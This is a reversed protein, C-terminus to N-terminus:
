HESWHHGNWWHHKGEHVYDVHDGHEVAEHGCDDGHQHLGEESEYVERPQYAEPAEWMSPPIKAM